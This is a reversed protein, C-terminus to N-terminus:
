SIIDKNSRNKKPFFIGVALDSVVQQSLSLFYGFKKHPNKSAARGKKIAVCM